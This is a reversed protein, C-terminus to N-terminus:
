EVLKEKFYFQLVQKFPDSYEKDMFMYTCTDWQITEIKMGMQLFKITKVDSYLIDTIAFPIIQEMSKGNIIEIWKERIAGRNFLLNDAVYDSDGVVLDGWTVPVQVFLFRINTLLLTNEPNNSKGVWFSSSATSRNKMIGFIPLVIQEDSYLNIQRKVQNPDITNKLFIVKKLKRLNIIIGIFVLTYVSGFWLPFYYPIPLILLVMLFLISIPLLVLISLKQKIVEYERDIEAFDSSESISNIWKYRIVKPIFSLLSFLGVGLVIYWLSSSDLQIWSVVPFMFGAIEESCLLFLLGTVGVSIILSFLSQRFEYYEKKVLLERYAYPNSKWDIARIAKFQVIKMWLLVFTSIIQAFVSILVIKTPIHLVFILILGLIIFGLPHKLENFIIKVLSAWEQLVEVKQVVDPLTADSAYPNPINDKIVAPIGNKIISPANEKVVNYLLGLLDNNWM